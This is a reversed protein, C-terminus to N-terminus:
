RLQIHSVNVRAEALDPVQCMEGDEGIDRVVSVALRVIYRLDEARVVGEVDFREVVVRRQVERGRIRDRVADRERQRRTDDYVRHQVIALGHPTDQALHIDLAIIDM